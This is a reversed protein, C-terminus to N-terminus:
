NLLTIEAKLYQFQRRTTKKMDWVTTANTNRWEKPPVWVLFWIALIQTKWKTNINLKMNAHWLFMNQLNRKQKLLLGVFFHWFCGANLIEGGAMWYCRAKMCCSELSSSASGSSSRIPLSMSSPPSSRLKGNWGMVAYTPSLLSISCCHKWTSPSFFSLFISGSSSFTVSNLDFRQKFVWHKYWESFFHCNLICNQTKGWM